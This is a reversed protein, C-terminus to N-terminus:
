RSPASLISRYREISVVLKSHSVEDQGSHIYHQVAQYLHELHTLQYHQNLLAKAVFNPDNNTERMKAAANLATALEIETPIGM